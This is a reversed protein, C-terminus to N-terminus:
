SADEQRPEHLWADSAIRGDILPLSASVSEPELPREIARALSEALRGVLNRDVPVVHHGNALLWDSLGTQRTTVITAGAALGEKIPLGIQERWRGHPVSPAVLVRTQAVIDLATSRPLPGTTARTTPHEAAWQAVTDLLPGGGVLTLRADPIDREVREWARMLQHVGGRDSLEGLYLVAPRRAPQPSVVPEPLELITRHPVSAVGPLSTYLDASAASAFCIRDVVTRILLGILTKGVATVLRPTKQGGTLLIAFPTLEMAYVVIRRPRGRVLGGLHWAAALAIWRPLFRMWLPEPLELVTHSTSLLRKIASLLTTRHVTAPLDVGLMDYKTAFYLNVADTMRPLRELHVARLEPFIRLVPAPTSDTPRTRPQMVRPALPMRASNREPDPIRPRVCCLRRFTGSCVAPETPTM